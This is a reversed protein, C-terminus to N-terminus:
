IRENLWDIITKINIDSYEIESSYIRCLEILNKINYNNKFNSIYMFRIFQWMVCAYINSQYRFLLYSMLHEFANEIDNSFQIQNNIQVSSIYSKWKEDLMELSDLLAVFSKLFSEDFDSQEICDECLWQIEKQVPSDDTLLQECAVECSIGYGVENEVFFRPHLRCIDCLYDEGLSEIIDCLNNDNLFPCRKKDTLKFHAVKDDLVISHRIREGMPGKLQIYKNLTCDDIDIEWGICCNHKCKEAICKFKCM